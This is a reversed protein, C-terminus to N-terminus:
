NFLFNGKRYPINRIIEDAILEFIENINNDNKVSIVRSEIFKSKIKKDSKLTDVYQKIDEDSLTRDKCDSKNGVLIIPIKAKPFKEFLQKLIHSTTIYSNLENVDFVLCIGTNGSFTERKFFEPLQEKSFDIIQLKFKVIDTSNKFKRSYNSMKFDYIKTSKETGITQLYSVRFGKNLYKRIMSSKGVMRDGLVLIRIILEM